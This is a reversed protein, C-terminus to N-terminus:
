SLAIKLSEINKKMFDVYSVKNQYDEKSVNHMTYFTRVLVEQGRKKCENQISAAINSESLEIQFVVKIHNDIVKKILRETVITNEQKVTACGKYAADYKLNYEKVFYLLPFRDAFILLDNKKNEVISKIEKDLSVLSSIYSEANKSYYESNTDDIKSIANSIAEVIIIANSISNWVHEDLEAEEEEKEEQASEPNEEDYTNGKTKVIDMLSLVLTKDKNLEPLIQKEVWEADSEGGIYIFVESSIIREIDSPSPSYDHLEQGPALLMSASKKDGAVHSAFDYGAFCTSVINTKEIGKCSTFSILSILLVLFLGFFKKMTGRKKYKSSPDVIIV